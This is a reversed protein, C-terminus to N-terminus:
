SDRVITWMVIKSSGWFIKEWGFDWVGFERALVGMNKVISHGEPVKLDRIIHILSHDVDVKCVMRFKNSTM